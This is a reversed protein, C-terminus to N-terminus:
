ELASYDAMLGMGSRAGMMSTKVGAPKSVSSAATKVCPKSVNSATKVSAPKSDANSTSRRKTTAAATTKKQNASVLPKCEKHYPAGGVTVGSGAIKEGCGACTPSYLQVHCAKCYPSRAEIIYPVGFLADGCSTCAFCEKHYNGLKAIKVVAGGRIPQGCGGCSGLKKAWRTKDGEDGVADAVPQPPGRTRRATVADANGEFATAFAIVAMAGFTSHTGVRAAAVRYGPEFICLRHGRSAVGDDIVLDEVMTSATAGLRGFWLCEGSKGSFSGYRNMRDATHLGDSGRHGIRGLTGRDVLHDEASLKLADLATSDTPQTIAPLCEPLARLYSVAEDIAKTGEKSPVAVKGGHQPPIYDKGKLHAKRACIRQALGAPNTRAESLAAILQEELGQNILRTLVLRFEGKSLQGDGDGDHEMVVTRIREEPWAGSVDESYKGAAAVLESISLLGNKDTDIEEFLETANKAGDSDQAAPTAPAATMGTSAGNGM